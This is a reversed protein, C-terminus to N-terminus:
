AYKEKLKKFVKEAPIGKVKGSEIEVMRRKIEKVYVPDLGEEEEREYITAILEEHLAVMEKVPLEKFRRAIKLTANTM